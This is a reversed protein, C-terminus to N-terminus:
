AAIKTAALANIVTASPWKFTKGDSCRDALLPFKPADIKVGSIRYLNGQARFVKGFDEAKLGFYAAYKEFETQRVSKGGPAIKVAVKLKVIGERDGLVGGADSFTVGFDDAVKTLAALMAASIIRHETRGITKITM